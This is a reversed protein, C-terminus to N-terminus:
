MTEFVSPEDLLDFCQSPNGVWYQNGLIVCVNTANTDIIGSENFVPRLIGKREWMDM